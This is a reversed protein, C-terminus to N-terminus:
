AIVKFGEFVVFFSVQIPKEPKKLKKIKKEAVFLREFNDRSIHKKAFYYFFNPVNTRLISNLTVFFRVTQYRVGIQLPKM